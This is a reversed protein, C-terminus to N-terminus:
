PSTMSWIKWSCLPGNVSQFVQPAIGRLDARQLRLLFPRVMIKPPGSLKSTRTHSRADRACLLDGSDPM